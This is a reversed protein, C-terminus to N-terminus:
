FLFLLTDLVHLLFSITTHKFLFTAPVNQHNNNNRDEVVFAFFEGNECHGYHVKNVWFFKRM